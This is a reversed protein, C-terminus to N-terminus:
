TLDNGGLLALLAVAATEIRLIGDGLSVPRAGAAALLQTEADTFGGEPGVFLAVQEADKRTDILPVHPAGPQAVVIASRETSLVKLSSPLSTALALNPIYARRSQKCAEICIRRWRERANSSPETVSRELQLPTFSAMGLQTAMDLLVSMRDGKPVACYLALRPRPPPIQHREHVSISVERRGIKRIHGRLVLGNGDFLAIADDVRLRQVTIHHAEDDTLLIEDGPTPASCYFLPETLRSIM